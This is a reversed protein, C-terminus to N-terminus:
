NLLVPSEIVHECKCKYIFLVSSHGALTYSHNEVTEHTDEYEDECLVCVYVSTERYIHKTDSLQIDYDNYHALAYNHPCMPVGRSDMEDALAAMPLIGVALVLTQFLATFKLVSKKYNAEKLCKESARICFVYCLVSVNTM